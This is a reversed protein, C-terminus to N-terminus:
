EKFNCLIYEKNDQVYFKCHKRCLESNVKVNRWNFELKKDNNKEFTEKLLLNSVEKVNPCDTYCFMETKVNCKILM